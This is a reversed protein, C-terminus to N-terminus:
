LRLHRDDALEVDRVQGRPAELQLLKQELSGVQYRADTLRDVLAMKEQEHRDREGAVLSDFQRVLYKQGELQIRLEVNSIRLEKLEELEAQSLPPPTGADERPQFASATQRTQYPEQEVVPAKPTTEEVQTDTERDTETQRSREARLQDSLTEADVSLLHGDRFEVFQTKKREEGIARQISEPSIYYKREGEHFCCDLRVIGRGNPNCWNTIARETRPVGAEEFIRAAERVTITMDEHEASCRPATRQEALDIREDESPHPVQLHREESRDRKEESALIPAHAERGFGESVNRIEESPIAEENRVTGVPASINPLAESPLSQIKKPHESDNRVEESHELHQHPVTGFTESAKRVEESPIAEENRVTGIPASPHLVSVDQGDNSQDDMTEENYGDIRLVQLINDVARANEGISGVHLVKLIFM